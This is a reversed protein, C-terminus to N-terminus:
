EEGEEWLERNIVAAKGKGIFCFKCLKENEKLTILPCWDPRPIKDPIVFEGDLILNDHESVPLAFCILSDDVDSYLYPCKLCDSPLEGKIVVKVIEM